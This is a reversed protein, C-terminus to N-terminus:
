RTYASITEVQQIKWDGEIKAMQLVCEQAEYPFQGNYDIVVNLKVEANSRDPALTVDIDYFKVRLEGTGPSALWAKIGSHVDEGRRNVAHDPLHIMVQVDPTLASTIKMAKAMRAFQSTDPTITAAEALENLQHAIVRREDPFLARFGWYIGGALCVVIIIWHFSKM